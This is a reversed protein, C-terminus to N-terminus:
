QRVLEGVILRPCIQERADGTHHREACVHCAAGRHEHAPVVERHKADRRDVTSHEAWRVFHSANGIERDHAIGEPPPREAGVRVRDTSRDRDVRIRHEDHTHHRRPKTMGPTRKLSPSHLPGSGRTHQISGRLTAFCFVVGRAIFVMSM